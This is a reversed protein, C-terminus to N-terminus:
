KNLSTFLNDNSKLKIGVVFFLIEIIFVSSSSLSLLSFNLFNKPPQSLEFSFKDNTTALLLLALLSIKLDDVDERGM